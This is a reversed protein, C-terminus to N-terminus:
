PAWQLNGFFNPSDLVQIELGTNLDVVWLGTTSIFAIHEGNPSVTGLINIDLLNTIREIEQTELNVRWIDSPVNHARAISVGLWKEWSPQYLMDSTVASFYLSQNDASFFPADIAIFREDSVALRQNSGDANAIWLEDAASSNLVYPVYALTQGDPSLALWYADRLITQGNNEGPVMSQIEYHFDADERFFHLFYSREGDPTWFATNYAEGLQTTALLLEPSAINEPTLLYLDTSGTVVQGENAKEYAILFADQAPSLVASLLWERNSASFIPTLQGTALDFVVLAQGEPHRSLFVLQGPAAVSDWGAALQYDLEVQSLHPFGYAGTASSITAVPQSTPGATVTPPLGTQQIEISCATMFVLGACYFFLSFLNIRL